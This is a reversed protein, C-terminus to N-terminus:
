FLFSITGPLETGLAHSCIMDLSQPLAELQYRFPLITTFVPTFFTRSIYERPGASLLSEGM